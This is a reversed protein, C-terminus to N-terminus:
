RINLETIKTRIHEAWKIKADLNMGRYKASNKHPINNGNMTILHAGKEWTM